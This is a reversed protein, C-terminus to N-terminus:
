ESIKDERKKLKLRWEVGEKVRSIEKEAEEGHYGLGNLMAVIWELMPQFPMRKNAEDELVRRLVIRITALNPMIRGYFRLVTRSPPRLMPVCVNWADSFPDSARNPRVHPMKDVGGPRRSGAPLNPINICWQQCLARGAPAGYGDVLGQLIINFYSVDLILPQNGKRQYLPLCFSAWAPNVSALVGLSTHVMALSDVDKIGDDKVIQFRSSLGGYEEKIFTRFIEMARSLDSSNTLTDQDVRTHQPRSGSQGELRLLESILHCALSPPWSARKVGRATGSNRGASLVSEVSDWRHRIIQSALLATLVARPIVAQNKKNVTSQLAIVKELMSKNKAATAYRVLAPALAPEQHFSEPIIPEMPDNSQLLQIASNSLGAETFLDLMNGLVDVPIQPSFAPYDVSFFGPRRISSADSERKEKLEQFFCEISRRQNRDVYAQLARLSSMTGEVGAINVYAQLIRHFLGLPSASTEFFYPLSTASTENTTSSANSETEIGYPQVLELMELMLGPDRQVLVGNSEVLRQVIAEWTVNGLGLKQKDLLGKLRKLHAVVDQASIGREGVGTYIENTTADVYAAVSESSITRAINLQDKLDHHTQPGAGELVDMLDKWTFGDSPQTGLHSKQLAQTWCVLSWEDDGTQEQMTKLVALGDVIWGGHLCSWLVLELWVELSLAEVQSNYRTGPLQGGFLPQSYQEGNGFAPSASAQHANWAAESLATMIRSSFIHLIPPQQLVYPQEQVNKYVAAPVIDGHHLHAMMALVQSMITRSEVPPRKSAELILQGISRWIQGLGAHQLRKDENRPDSVYQSSRKLNVSTNPSPVFVPEQFLERRTLLHLRQHTPWQIGTATIEDELLPFGRHGQAVEKVVWAVVDWRRRSLGLHSLLDLGNLNQAATLIHLLGRRVRTADKPEAIPWPVSFERNSDPYGLELPSSRLDAPLFPQLRHLWADSVDRWFSAHPTASLIDLLTPSEGRM